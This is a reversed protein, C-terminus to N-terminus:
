EKKAQALEIETDALYYETAWLLYSQLRGADHREKMEKHLDGLRKLHAEIATIREAKSTAMALAAKEWCTSWEYVVQADVLGLGQYVARAADLQRKAADALRSKADTKENEIGAVVYDAHSRHYSAELEVRQDNIKVLDKAVKALEAVRDRYAQAATLRKAYDTNLVWCAEMKRQAWDCADPIYPM